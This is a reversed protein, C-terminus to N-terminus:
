GQPYGTDGGDERRRKALPGKDIRAHAEGACPKGVDNVALCACDRLAGDRQPPLGPPIRAVGQHLPTELETWPLGHKKSALHGPTRPLLQRHRRVEASNGYRFYAGWGRLVRNLDAVAWDVHEAM